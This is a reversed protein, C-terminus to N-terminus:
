PMRPLQFDLGREDNAKITAAVNLEALSIKHPHTPTSLDFLTDGAIAYNNIEARHGDTFVLVSSPQPDPAPAPTAPAALAAESAREAKLERAVAEDAAIQDRLRAEYERLSSEQAHYSQPVEVVQLISGASDVPLAGPTYGLYPESIAPYVPFVYVPIGVPIGVPGHNQRFNGQSPFSGFPQGFGPSTVSPPVGHPGNQGGFNYSNVSAPVGQAAASVVALMLGLVLGTGAAAIRNRSMVGM